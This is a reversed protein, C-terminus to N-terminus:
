FNSQYLRGAVNGILSIWSPINFLAGTVTAGWELPFQQSMAAPVTPYLLMLGNSGANNYVGFCTFGDDVSFPINGENSEVDTRIAYQFLNAAGLGGTVSSYTASSAVFVVKFVDGLKVAPDASIFSTSVGDLLLGRTQVVAQNGQTWGVAAARYGLGYQNYKLRNMPFTLERHNVQMTKFTVDYDVLVYGPSLLAASKTYLFLEGPGEHMLDEDNLIDTTYTKFVPKYAATHNKWLPGICTNSDSLVVSMFNPNSTDLLASGRNKNVYFMVDGSTNTPAATIFHFTVGHVVFEAYIGGYARLVSAVFAHPILPCGGALTWDTSAAQVAAVQFMFDRGHVRVGGSVPRIIPQSGRISNGISVPATDITSM